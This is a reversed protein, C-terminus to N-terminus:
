HVHSLEQELVTGTLIQDFGDILIVLLLGYLGDFICKL